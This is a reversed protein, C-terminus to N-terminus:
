PGIGSNSPAHCDQRRAVGPDVGVPGDPLPMVLETNGDLIEALTVDADPGLDIGEADLVSLLDDETM